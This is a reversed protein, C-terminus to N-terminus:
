VSLDVARMQKEYKSIGRSHRDIPSGAPAAVFETIENEVDWADVKAQIAKLEAESFTVEEKKVSNLADRLSGSKIPSVTRKPSTTPTSMLPNSTKPKLQNGFKAKAAMGFKKAAAPDSKRLRDYEANTSTTKKQLATQAAPKPAPKVPDSKVPDSKVPDKKVPDKKVPDTKAPPNQTGFYDGGKRRAADNKAIQASVKPDVKKTEKKKGFGLKNGIASLVL